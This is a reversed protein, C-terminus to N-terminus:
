FGKNTIKQCTLLRRWYSSSEQVYNTILQTIWIVHIVLYRLLRTQCIGKLLVFKIVANDAYVNRLLM